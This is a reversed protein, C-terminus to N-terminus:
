KATKPQPPYQLNSIQTKIQQFEPSDWKLNETAGMQKMLDKIHQERNGPDPHSSLFVEIDSMKGQKKSLRDFFNVMGRPTYGAKFVMRAGLEDAETEDKRSYALFAGTAVANVVLETIKPDVRGELGAILVNGAFSAAIKASLQETGHRSIIHGAEHALVGALEAENQCYNILGTFVFIHGGPVAFANVEQSKLVYFKYTFQKEPGFQVLSQGLRNIYANTQPDNYVQGKKGYENLFETAVQNGLKKEEEISYLNFQGKNYGSTVCGALWVTCFATLWLSYKKM